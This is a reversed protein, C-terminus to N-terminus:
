ATTVVGPVCAHMCVRCVGWVCVENQSGQANQVPLLVLNVSELQREAM